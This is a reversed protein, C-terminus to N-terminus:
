SNTEKVKGPFPNATELRLIELQTALVIEKQWLFAPLGRDLLTREWEVLLTAVEAARKAPTWSGSMQLAAVHDFVWVKM